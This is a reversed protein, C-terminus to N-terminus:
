RPRTQPVDAHRKQCANTTLLFCMNLHSRPPLADFRTPKFRKRNASFSTDDEDAPVIDFMKHQNPTSGVGSLLCLNGEAPSGGRVSSGSRSGAGSITGFSLASFFRPPQFSRHGTAAERRWPTDFVDAATKDYLGAVISRQYEDIVPFSDGV